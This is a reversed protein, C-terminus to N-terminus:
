DKALATTGPMRACNGHRRNLRFKQYLKSIFIPKFNSSLQFDGSEWFEQTAICANEQPSETKLSPFGLGAL